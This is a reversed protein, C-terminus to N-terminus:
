CDLEARGRAALLEWAGDPAISYAHTNGGSDVTYIRNGHACELLPTAPLGASDSFELLRQEYNRWVQGCLLVPKSTPTAAVVAAPEGLPSRLRVITGRGLREADGDPCFGRGVSAIEADVSEHQRFGSSLSCSAPEEGGALSCTAVGKLRTQALDWGTLNTASRAREGGLCAWVQGSPIWWRGLDDDVYFSQDRGNEVISNRWRNPDQDSRRPSFRM